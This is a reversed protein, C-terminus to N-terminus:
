KLFKTQTWISDSQLTDNNCYQFYIQEFGMSKLLESVDNYLKQKVWVIRHESEIHVSKINKIKDGFSELVEYTAGEVDIKCLDIEENIIDLLTSGLMTELEIKNTNIKSYLDDVRNLLSSVGNLIQDSVDVGYFIIKKEENFIPRKILNINPYKKIIKSQQIPNPEIVWVNKSDINFEKRLKEADDGDRSGIELVTKPEINTKNIIANKYEIM